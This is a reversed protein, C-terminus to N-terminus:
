PILVEISPTTPGELAIPVRGPTGSYLARLLPLGAAAPNHRVRDPIEGLAVDHGGAFDVVRGLGGEPPQESTLCLAVGLPDFSPARCLPESLSDDATGVVVEGGNGALLLLGELLCSAFTQAGGAIATSFGRNEVAITLLGTATNHVSNKCRM